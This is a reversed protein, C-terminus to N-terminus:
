MIRCTPPYYYEEYVYLSRCVYYGRSRCSCCGDGWLDCESWRCPVHFYPPVTPMCFHHCCPGQRCKECCTCRHPEPLKPDEPPKPDQLPKPDKPPKPDQPPKPDKPPKIQICKVTRGRQLTNKEHDKWSLLVGCHNNSHKGEQWIDPESNRKNM